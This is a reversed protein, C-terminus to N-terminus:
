KDESGADTDNVEDQFDDCMEFEPVPYGAERAMDFYM